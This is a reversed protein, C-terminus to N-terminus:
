ICLIEKLKNWYTLDLSTDRPLKVGVSEITIPIVDRTQKALDFVSKRGTGIHITCHSPFNQEDKVISNFNNIILIIEKAIIDVYDGSTYQDICAAPHEFPRPKLTTRIVIAKAPKTEFEGLLKTLAYFNRPNPVDEETYNGKEGDFVYETSIYIMPIHQMILNETGGVNIDYCLKKETEARAVDTYAACHVILDPLKNKHRMFWGGVSGAWDIEMEKHTPAVFDGLKLLEQGLLGSGGTLLIM